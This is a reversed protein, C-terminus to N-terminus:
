SLVEIATSLAPREIAVLVSADRALGDILPRPAVRGYAGIARDDLTYVGVCAYWPEAIGDLM